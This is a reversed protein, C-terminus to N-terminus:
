TSKKRNSILLGILLVLLAAAIGALLVMKKDKEQDTQQNTDTQEQGVNPVTPNLNTEPNVPSAGGSPCYVDGDVTTQCPDQLMPRAEVKQPSFSFKSFVVAFLLIFCSFLKAIKKINKKM